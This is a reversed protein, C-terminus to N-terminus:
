KKKYMPDDISKMPNFGPVAEILLNRANYYDESDISDKLKNIIRELDDWPIM